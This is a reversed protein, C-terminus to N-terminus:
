AQVIALVVELATLPLAAFCEDETAVTAVVVAWAGGGVTAALERRSARSPMRECEATWAEDGIVLVARGQTEAVSLSRWATLYLHRQTPPQMRLVRSKFGDLQAQPQAQLNGLRM